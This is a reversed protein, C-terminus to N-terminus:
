LLEAVSMSSDYPFQEVSKQFEPLTSFIGPWLLFSSCFFCFRPSHPSALITRSSFLLGFPLDVYICILRTVLLALECHVPRRKAGTDSGLKAQVRECPQRSISNLTSPAELIDSTTAAERPPLKPSPPVHLGQCNGSAETIYLVLGSYCVVCCLVVCCLV